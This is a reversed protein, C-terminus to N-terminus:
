RYQILDISISASITHATSNYLGMDIWYLDRLDLTQSTFGYYYKDGIKLFDDPSVDANIFKEQGEVFLHVFLKKEGPEAYDSVCHDFEFVVTNEFPPSLKTYINELVLDDKFTQEVHIPNGTRIAAYNYNINQWEIDKMGYYDFMISSRFTDIKDTNKLLRTFYWDPIVATDNGEGKADMIIGERIESQVMIQRYAHEIMAYSPVFFVMGILIACGLPINSKEPKAHVLIDATFSLSLLTFFLASNESRRPMTPSVVFVFLACVSLAAFGLAFVVSQINDEREKQILLTVILIFIMVIYLLFFGKFAKTMRDYIHEIVKEMLSMAHWKNYSDNELRVYNGPAFLLLAYGVCTSFLGTLLIRRDGKWYLAILCLSFFAMCFGLSENSLGAGAGLIGLIILQVTNMRRERSLFYLIFLLYAGAWVLPWLYNASGVLWFSTEGINPNGSWYMIFVLWVILFTSKDVLESKRVVGPLLTVMVSVSLFALSNLAMYVQRSFLNMLLSSTYDAIFRGSWNLYHSIHNSLSLGKLYYAYDDSHMPVQIATRYILFYIVIVTFIFFVKASHFETTKKYENM